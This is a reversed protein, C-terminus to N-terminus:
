DQKRHHPTLTRSTIIPTKIEYVIGTFQRLVIPPKTEPLKHSQYERV